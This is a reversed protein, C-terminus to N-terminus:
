RSKYKGLAEQISVAELEGREYADIRAEAEDAWIEDIGVDLCELSLLIKEALMVRDQASLELAKDLLVDASETM